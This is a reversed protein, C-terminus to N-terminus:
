SAVQGALQEIKIVVFEAPKLPAFGVIINVVGRNIDNQTTTERDCKVLYAQAPTKGQFAGQQFLGQMFAGINLRIQSWLPEDNPEFVVWQTNRFLTEEIFYATRRVSLYKWQDALMDAGRLTRGGWVINGIVPFSRLCDIGLQNLRGNEADNLKVALKPVGILTAEIGAPAKWVGRNADNRAIVGAVAGSPAFRDLRNEQLPDPAMIRPFYIAGNDLKTVLPDLGAEAAGVPDSSVSWADPADVLYVARRKRAYALAANHTASDVDLDLQLPPIVLLNFLDAKELAYLGEKKAELSPASIEANTILGGDSGNILPPPVLPPTAVPAGTPPSGVMTVLQSEQDLITGVYRKDGITTTLNLFTESAATQTPDSADAERIVLNFAGPVVTSLTVAVTLREGWDGVNDAELTLNQGPGAPLVISAAVGNLHVRVIIADAGGNLFYQSVAYSMPSSRTLDGFRRVYDSFSAIRFPTNVPGRPASGVFATISTAVGVITRVSSPREEIYVGPYSLTQPM